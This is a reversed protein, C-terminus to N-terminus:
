PNLYVVKESEEWNEIEYLDDVGSYWVPKEKDKIKELVKILEKVNM